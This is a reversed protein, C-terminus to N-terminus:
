PSIINHIIHLHVYDRIYMIIYYLIIYYICLYICLIYGIHVHINGPSYIYIEYVQYQIGLLQGQALNPSPQLISILRHDM